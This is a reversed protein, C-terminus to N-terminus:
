IMNQDDVLLYNEDKSVNGIRQTMRFQCLRDSNLVKMSM